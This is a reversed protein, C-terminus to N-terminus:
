IASSIRERRSLPVNSSKSPAKNTKDNCITERLQGLHTPEICWQYGLRPVVEEPHNPVIIGKRWSHSFEKYTM